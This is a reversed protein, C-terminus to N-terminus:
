FFINFCISECDERAQLCNRDGRRHCKDRSDECDGICDEEEASPGDFCEDECREFRRGCKADSEEECGHFDDWCNNECVEHGDASPPVPADTPAIVPADTPPIVPADTPPPVPADTPPSVPADTSPPVPADTPPQQVPADTPPLVPATTPTSGLLTGSCTGRPLESVVQTEETTVTTVDLPPPQIDRLKQLLAPDGFDCVNEDKCKAGDRFTM